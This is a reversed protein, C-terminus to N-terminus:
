RPCPTHNNNQYRLLFIVPRRESQPATKARPFTPPARAQRQRTTSRTTTCRISAHQKLARAASPHPSLTPGESREPHRAPRARAVRPQRNAARRVHNHRTPSPTASAPDHGQPPPLQGAQWLRIMQELRTFIRALAAMILAHIADPIWACNEEPAQATDRLRAIKDGLSPSTSEM